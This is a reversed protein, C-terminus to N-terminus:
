SPLASNFIMPKTVEMAPPLALFAPQLYFHMNIFIPLILPFLIAFRHKNAPSSWRIEPAAMAIATHRKFTRRLPL